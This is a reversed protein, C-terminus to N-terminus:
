CASFQRKSTLKEDIYDCLPTLVENKFGVYDVTYAPDTGFLANVVQSANSEECVRLLLHYVLAVREEYSPQQQFLQRAQEVKRGDSALTQFQMAIAQGRTDSRLEDLIPAVFPENNLFQWFRKLNSVFFTTKTKMLRGTRRELRKQLRTLQTDNM